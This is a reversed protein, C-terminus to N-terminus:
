ARVVQEVRPQLARAGEHSMVVFPREVLLYLVAPLGFVPMLMLAFQVGSDWWLSHFGPLLKLTFRM